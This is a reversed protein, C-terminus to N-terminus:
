NSATNTSFIWVANTQNIDFANTNQTNTKGFYTSKNQKSLINFTACFQNNIYNISGGLNVNITSFDRGLTDITDELISLRNNDFKQHNEFRMGRATDKSFCVSSLLVSFLIILKKM